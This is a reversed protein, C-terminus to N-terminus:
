LEDKEIRLDNVLSKSAETKFTIYIRYKDKEALLSGIGMYCDKGKSVGEHILKSNKISFSSIFAKLHEIIQTKSQENSKQDITYNVKSALNKDLYALDNKVIADLFSKVSQGTVDLTFMSMAFFLFLKM